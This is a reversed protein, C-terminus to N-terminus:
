KVKLLEVEFILDANPPIVKGSGRAGYGLDPPIMLKRKGGEKMGAVGEDWGKIVQGKGITFSFPEGGHDYSSDFKKGNKLWGTYQVEVTDGPEATKGTGVKLDVYKLGSPNTVASEDGGGAGGGGKQASAGRTMTHAVYGYAAGAVLILIAGLTM